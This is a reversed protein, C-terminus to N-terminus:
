LLSRLHKLKGIQPPIPGTLKNSHLDKPSTVNNVTWM